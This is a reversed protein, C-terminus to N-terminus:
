LLLIKIDLQIYHHTDCCQTISHTVLVVSPSDSINYSGMFVFSYLSGFHQSTYERITCVGIVLM